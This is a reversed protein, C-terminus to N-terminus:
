FHQFQTTYYIWHDYGWGGTKMYEMFGPYAAGWKQGTVNDYAYYDHLGQLYNSYQLPYQGQDIFTSPYTFYVKLQMLGSVGSINVPSYWETM